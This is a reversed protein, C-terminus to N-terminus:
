VLGGSLFHLTLWVLFSAFSLRRLRWAKGKRKVSFWNWGHESLSDGKRESWVAPAEVLFFWAFWVYWANSYGFW